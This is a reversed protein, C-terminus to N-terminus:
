EPMSEETSQGEPTSMGSEDAAMVKAQKKRAKEAEAERFDEASLKTAAFVVQYPVTRGELETLEKAIDGRKAEEDYYRRRIYDIRREESGDALKLIVSRGRKPTNETNETNEESKSRAM